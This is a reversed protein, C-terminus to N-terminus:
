KLLDTFNTKAQELNEKSGLDLWRCHDANFAKIKHESALKLYADIISFNGNDEIYNFIQPSIIHIGMFSLRNLENYDDNLIKIENSKQSEWGILDNNENFLFYRATKRKRTFLTALANETEHYNFATRYDADTLVDVNHVLFPAGDNFFWSAEKIGGGTDLLATEHSIEIRINFNNKKKLFSEIQDAFHHTNIIIENFSRAKLRLILWELLPKGKIDVLAKPKHDTLPKLRTGLGAALIMAKM